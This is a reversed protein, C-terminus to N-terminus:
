DMAVAPGKAAGRPRRLLLLLPLTALIVVAMFYFDNIYAIMQAQRTVEANLAAVGHIETLSYPATLARALPNDPAIHQILSSHIVQTNEVFLAEVISVGVSGGINRMLSFIATGQTLHQRSLTSFAAVSLPTFVFGLGVGQLAGSIVLLDRDMYLSFGTMQWLSAATLALGCFIILRTDVKGIIRAVLVMSILTGVGRPAMVVGATVVPYNML